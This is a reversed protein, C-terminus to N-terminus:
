FSINSGSSWDEIESKLHGGRDSYSKRGVYEYPLNAYISAYLETATAFETLEVDALVERVTRTDDRDPATLELQGIRENVTRIETPYSLSEDLVLHLETIRM